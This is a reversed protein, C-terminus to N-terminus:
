QDGDEELFRFWLSLGAVAVREVAGDVRGFALRDLRQEVVRQATTPEAVLRLIRM